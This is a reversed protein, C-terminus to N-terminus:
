RKVWDKANFGIIVLRSPRNRGNESDVATVTVYEAPGDTRQISPDVITYAEHFSFFNVMKSDPLSPDSDFFAVAAVMIRYASIQLFSASPIYLPAKLQYIQHGTERIRIIQKMQSGM